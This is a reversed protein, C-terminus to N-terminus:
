QQWGLFAVVDFSGYSYCRVARRAEDVALIESSVPADGRRALAADFAAPNERIARIDHM